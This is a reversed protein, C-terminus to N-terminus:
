RKDKDANGSIKNGLAVGAATKLIDGLLGSILGNSRPPADYYPPNLAQMQEEMYMSTIKSKIEALIDDITRMINADLANILYLLGDNDRLSVTRGYMLFDNPLNSGICAKEWGANYRDLVAFVASRVKDAPVHDHIDNPLEHYVLSINHFAKDVLDAEFPQGAQLKKKLTKYEDTPSEWFTGNTKGGFLGEYLALQGDCRDKMESYLLCFQAYQLDRLLKMSPNKCPNAEDDIYSAWPVKKFVVTKHLLRTKGGSYIDNTMEVSEIECDFSLYENKGGLFPVTFRLPVKFINKIKEILDLVESENDSIVEIRPAYESPLTKPNYYRSVTSGNALTLSFRRYDLYYRFSSTVFVYPFSFEHGVIKEALDSTELSFFTVPRGCSLSGKLHDIVAQNALMLDERDFSRYMPYAIACSIQTDLDPETGTNEPVYPAAEGFADAPCGCSPCAAARDSVMHGCDPCKILGM